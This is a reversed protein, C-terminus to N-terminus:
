RREACGPVLAGDVPELRSAQGDGTGVHRLRDGIGGICARIPVPDSRRFDRVRWRFQKTLRGPSSGPVGQNFTLHEVLQALPERRINQVRVAVACCGNRLTNHFANPSQRRDERRGGAQAVPEPAHVAGGDGPDGVRGAGPDDAPRHRGHGAEVNAQTVVSDGARV